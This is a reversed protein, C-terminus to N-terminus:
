ETRTDHEHEWQRTVVTAHQFCIAPPSGSNKADKYAQRFVRNKNGDFEIDKTKVGEYDGICAWSRVGHLKQGKTLYKAVYGAVGADCRKFRGSKDRAIFIHGFGVAHARERVLKLPMRGRVVWHFHLGHGGPHEETVRVAAFGHPFFRPRRKSDNSLHAVLKAHMNGCWGDPYTKAFTLTWLYCPVDV